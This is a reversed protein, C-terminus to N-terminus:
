YQNKKNQLNAIEKKLADRKAIYDGLYESVLEDTSNGVLEDDSVDTFVYVIM